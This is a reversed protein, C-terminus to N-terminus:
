KLGGLSLYKSFRSLVTQISDKAFWASTGPTTYNRVPGNTYGREQYAAYPATWEMTAKTPNDIRKNVAARLHGGKMPTKPNSERHVDDMVLRLAIATRNLVRNRVISTNDKFVVSM